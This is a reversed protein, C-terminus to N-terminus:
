LSFDLAVFGERHIMMHCPGYKFARIQTPTCEARPIWVSSDFVRCNYNKWNSRM